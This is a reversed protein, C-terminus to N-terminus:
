CRTLMLRSVSYVGLRHGILIAWKFNAINKWDTITAKKTIIVFRKNSVLKSPVTGLSYRGETKKSGIMAASPGCQWSRPGIKEWCMRRAQKILRLRYETINVLRAFFRRKSRGPLSWQGAHGLIGTSRLRQLSRNRESVFVSQMLIFRGFFEQLSQLPFSLLSIRHSTVAFLLVHYQM